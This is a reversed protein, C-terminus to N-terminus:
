SSCISDESFVVGWGGEKGRLGGQVPKEPHQFSKARSQERLEPWICLSRGQNGMLALDVVSVGTRLLLFDPCSSSNLFLPLCPSISLHLYNGWGTDSSPGGNFEQAEDLFRHRQFSSPKVRGLSMGAIVEGGQEQGFM